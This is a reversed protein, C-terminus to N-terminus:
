GIINRRKYKNIQKQPHKAHYTDNGVGIGGFAVDVIREQVLGRQSPIASCVASFAESLRPGEIKSPPRLAETNTSGSAKNSKSLWTVVGMEKLYHM